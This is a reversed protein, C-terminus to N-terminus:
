KKYYNIYIIYFAALCSLGKLKLIMKSPSELIFPIVYVNTFSAKDLLEDIILELLGMGGNSDIENSFFILYVFKWDTQIDEISSPM